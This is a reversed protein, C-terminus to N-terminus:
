FTWYIVCTSRKIFVSLPPSLLVFLLGLVFYKVESTYVSILSDKLIYKQNLGKSVKNNKNGFLVVAWPFRSTCLFALLYNNFGCFPKWVCTNATITCVSALSIVEVIVRQHTLSLSATAEMTPCCGKRRRPGLRQPSSTFFHPNLSNQEGEYITEVCMWSYLVAKLLNPM